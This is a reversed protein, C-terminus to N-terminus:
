LVKKLIPICKLLSVICAGIVVVAGVYILCAVISPMFQLLWKFIFQLKIQLYVDFLYVGFSMKGLWHVVRQVIMPLEVHEAFMKVSCFVAVTPITILSALYKESYVGQNNKMDWMTMLVSGVICIIAVGNLILCSKFTGKEKSQLVGFYYGLVPFFIADSSFQFVIGFEGWTTLAGVIPLVGKFMVGLALWYWFEKETMGNVLKRLFPLVLLYGMYAYLFWLHGMGTVDGNYVKNLVGLFDLAIPKLYFITYFFSILITVFIYKGIRKLFITKFSEERGLLLAGSIMFFLPVNVCRFVDLALYIVNAVAHHSVTYLKSGMAGTHTFIVLYVAIIRILDYSLKRQKM